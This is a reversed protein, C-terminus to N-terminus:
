GVDGAAGMQSGAVSADAKDPMQCVALDLRPFRLSVRLGPDADSLEINAGHLEAVAKVLSLGLGHGGKGRTSGEFRYLRKLVKPREAEPIGPGNDAVSLIVEDDQLSTTLEIRSGEPCYRVANEVLNALAQRLLERDGDVMVLEDAGSSDIVLEYGSDECVAEYVDYLNSAIENISVPLFRSRRRGSEIQSIRLLADFTSRMDAAVEEIEELSKVDTRGARNAKLATELPAVFRVLPAKLDHALMSSMGQLTDVSEQLRDFSVNARRALRDIEDDGQIPLRESLEGNSIRQITGGLQDLRDRFRFSFSLSTLLSPLLCLPLAWILIGTVNGRLAEREYLSRGFVFCGGDEQVRALFRFREYGSSAGPNSTAVHALTERSGLNTDVWAESYGDGCAPIDVNGGTQNGTIDFVAFAGEHRVPLLRRFRMIIGVSDPEISANLDEAVAHREILAQDVRASLEDALQVYTLWALLGLSLATVLTIALGARFSLDRWYHRISLKM